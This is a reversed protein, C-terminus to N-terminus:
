HQIILKKSVKSNKNTILVYYLGSSLENTTINYKYQNPALETELIGVGTSNLILLNGGESAIQANLEISFERDAPNPYLKFQENENEETSLSPCALFPDLEGCDDVGYCCLSQVNLNAEDNFNCALTDTCGISILEDCSGDDCPAAPNFEIYNPDTCGCEPPYKLFGSVVQGQQATEEDAVIELDGVGPVRIVVNLQFSFQGETTFQGIMIHNADDAGLAGDCQIKLSDFYASTFSSSDTESGFISTAYGPANQEVPQITFGEPEAPRLSDTPALGDQQTLPIGAAPDDNQLLGNQNGNPWISGDQDESKLVGLTTGSTGGFCLYSDIGVTHFNLATLVNNHGFTVGFDNTNFFPQTSSIELLNNSNGFLSILKCGECLDIFVRYTTDAPNLGPSFPNDADNEDSIYYKEVVLNEIYNQALLNNSFGSIILIIIIIKKM